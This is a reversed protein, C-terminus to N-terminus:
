SLYALARQVGEATDGLMGIGTNCRHCLIGRVAGTTHCHDIHTDKANKFTSECVACVNNQDSLIKEYESVSLGYRKLRQIVVRDTTGILESYPTRPKPKAAGKRRRAAQCAYCRSEVSLYGDRERNPAFASVPKTTKCVRCERHTDDVSYIRNRGMSGFTDNERDM